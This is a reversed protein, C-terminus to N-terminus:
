IGCNILKNKYILIEKRPNIHKLCSTNNKSFYWSSLKTRIYKYIKHVKKRHIKKKPKYM